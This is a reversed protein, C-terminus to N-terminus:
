TGALLLPRCAPTGCLDAACCAIAHCTPRLNHLARVEQLGVTEDVAALTEAIESPSAQNSDWAIQLCLRPPPAAPEPTVDNPNRAAHTHTHTHSVHPGTHLLLLMMGSPPAACAAPACALWGWRCASRAHDRGWRRSGLGAWGFPRPPVLCAWRCALQVPRRWGLKGAQVLSLLELGAELVFRAQLSFVRPAEELRTTVAYSKNCGGAVYTHTDCFPLAQM